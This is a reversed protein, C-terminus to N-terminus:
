VVVLQSHGCTGGIVWGDPHHSFSLTRTTTCINWKQQDHESCPQASISQNKSAVGGDLCQGGPYFGGGQPFDLRGQYDIIEEYPHDYPDMLFQQQRLGNCQWIRLSSSDSDLDGADLCWNSVKDKGEAGPDYRDNHKQGARIEFAETMFWERRHRLWTSNSNCDDLFVEAGNYLDCTPHYHRDGFSLDCLEKSFLCRDGLSILHFTDMPSADLSNAIAAMVLVSEPLRVM